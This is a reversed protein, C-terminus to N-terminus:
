QKIIQRYSKYGAETTVELLYIGAEWMNASLKAVGKTLNGHSVEAGQVTFIRYSINGTVTAPLAITLEELVPNPYAVFPTSEPSESVGTLQAPSLVNVTFGNMGRFINGLSDVSLTDCYTSTCGSNDSVTLCVNYTGFSNYFHSPYPLNSTTGDGFDWAFNLNLGNSLNVIAVQYPALQLSVFYAQCAGPTSIATDVVITSCFQDTCSNDAIDLCVNYTGPAAYVHQPFRSSSSTGDGFSWTYSTSPSTGVSLDIFYGTLGLATTVFNANCTPFVNGVTIDMCSICLTTLPLTDVEYLCIHYIGPQAYVHQIPSGTGVSGDGFDWSAINGAGVNATLTLANPNAPDPIATFSCSPVFNISLVQCTYCLTVGTSQNIETVCVNYVGPLPYIHSTSAGMGASGDGFDWNVLSNSSNTNFNFYALNSQLSDVIASFSCTAGGTVPIVQCYTCLVTGFADVENMCVTYAGPTVYTHSPNTGSGASGDGFSWTILSAPSGPNAIFNIMGQNMPDPTYLFTCNNGIAGTVSIQNCYQCVINNASDRETMCVNYVGATLYVHVANNGFGTTNDGFDWEISSSANGPVASFTLNFANVSDISYTYACSGNGSVTVVDCYSCIPNGTSNLESMCVTYTGPLSYTHWVPNGAAVTGDGFDWTVASGPYAPLGNFQVSLSTGPTATWFCNNTNPIINVFSCYSCTTGLFDVTTLCVQYMGAQAYTHTNSPGGTGIIGDGYDWSYSVASSASALFTVLNPQGPSNATSTFSCPSSTPNITIQLCYSCLLTGTASDNESVCVTFLGTSGYTHTVTSGTATPSGDGFDWTSINSGQTNTVFTVQNTTSDVVYSILCSSNNMVVTTCSSCVIGSSDSVYLCANFPGTGNYIHLPAPDTSTTGDGFDWLLTFQPMPFTTYPNFQTATAGPVQTYFFNCNQSKSGLAFFAFFLLLLVKKM